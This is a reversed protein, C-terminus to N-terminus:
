RSGDDPEDAVEDSHEDSGDDTPQAAEAGSASEASTAPEAAVEPGDAFAKEVLTPSSGGTLTALMQRVNALQANISDRRQTAAALERDSNSRVRSAM